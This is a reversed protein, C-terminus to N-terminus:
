FGLKNGCPTHCRMTVRLSAAGIYARPGPLKWSQFERGLPRKINQRALWEEREPVEWKTGRKGVPYFHRPQISLEM